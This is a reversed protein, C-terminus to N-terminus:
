LSYTSSKVRGVGPAFLGVALYRTGLDLPNSTRTEDSGSVKSKMQEYTTIAVRRGQACVM